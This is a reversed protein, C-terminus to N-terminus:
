RDTDVGWCGPRGCNPDWTAWCNCLESDQTPEIALSRGDEERAADVLEALDSGSRQYCLMDEGPHNSDYATSLVVFHGRHPERITLVIVRTGGYIQASAIIEVGDGVTQVPHCIHCSNTATVRTAYGTGSGSTDEVIAALDVQDFMCNLIHVHNGVRRASFQNNRLGKRRAWSCGSVILKDVPYVTSTLTVGEGGRDSPAGSM